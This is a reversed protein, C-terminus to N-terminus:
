IDNFGMFYYYFKLIVVGSKGPFMLFQIQHEGKIKRVGMKHEKIGWGGNQCGILQREMM